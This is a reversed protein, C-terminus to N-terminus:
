VSIKTQPPQKAFALHSHFYLADRAKKHWANVLEPESNGHVAVRRKIFTIHHVSVFPITGFSTQRNVAMQILRDKPM